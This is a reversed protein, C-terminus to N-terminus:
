RVVLPLYTRAGTGSSLPFEYSDSAWVTTQDAEQDGIKFAVKEGEACGDKGPVEPDDGKVNMTYASQGQDDVLTRTTGALVDGCWATVPTDLAVNMGNVKVPGWVTLPPPPASPSFALCLLAGAILAIKTFHHVM